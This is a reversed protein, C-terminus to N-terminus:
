LFQITIVDRYNLGLLSNASGVKSPNSRFIAIELFGAENFIALKEGEYTKIPYKDSTAIASYNPLITKISKPKMVIEYPRGRSVELFQKKSINTVVNGFHDIYIVYGKISNGDDPVIAQLETAEKIATIEKGIVNLLGGKALHSAVQIFIDLDTSEIPFRDHINIAVIKQPVIKQTLMSLIGNDACIFYHDNWQMAIHQNEKNREIDVGILHVTGKPFSFYSAGIIYSAEATNFPDIDHSIDIIQVESNESLIKGKLSGVFHDKLGYDTTLTIISM